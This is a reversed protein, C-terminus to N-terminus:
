TSDTYSLVAFRSDGIFVLLSVSADQTLKYNQDSITETYWLRVVIAYKYGM